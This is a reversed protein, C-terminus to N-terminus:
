VRLQAYINIWVYFFVYFYLCTRPLLLIGLYFVPYIRMSHTALPSTNSVASIKRQPQPTRSRCGFCSRSGAAAAQGEGAKRGRRKERHAIKRRRICQFVFACTMVYTRFDCLLVLNQQSNFYICNDLLASRITTKTVTYPAYVGRHCTGSDGFGNALARRRGQKEQSTGSETYCDGIDNAPSAATGHFWADCGLLNVCVCLLM